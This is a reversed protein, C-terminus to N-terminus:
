CKCIAAADSELEAQFHLNPFGRAVRHIISGLFNFFSMVVKIDEDAWRKKTGLLDIYLLVM